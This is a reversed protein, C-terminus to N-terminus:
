VLFGKDWMKGYDAAHGGRGGGGSAGASGARGDAPLPAPPPRAFLANFDLAGGAEVRGVAPPRIQHVKGALTADNGQELGKVSSTMHGSNAVNEKGTRAAGPGITGAPQPPKNSNARATTCDGAGNRAVRTGDSSDQPAHVHLMPPVCGSRSAARPAPGARVDKHETRLKKHVHSASGAAAQQQADRTGAADSEGHGELIEHVRAHAQRKGANARITTKHQAAARELTVSHTKIGRMLHIQMAPAAGLSPHSDPAWASVCCCSCGLARLARPQAVFARARTCTCARMTRSGPMRLQRRWRVRACPCPCPRIVRRLVCSCSVLRSRPDPFVRCCSRAPPWPRARCPSTTSRRMRVRVDARAPERPREPVCPSHFCRGAVQIIFDGRQVLGSAAASSGSKVNVVILPLLVGDAFGGDISLGVGVLAPPAVAGPSAAAAKHQAATRSARKQLAAGWQTGVSDQKVRGTMSQLRLARCIGNCTHQKMFQRVGQLGANGKGFGRGDVTHIQVRRRTLQHYHARHEEDSQPEGSGRTRSRGEARKSTPGHAM